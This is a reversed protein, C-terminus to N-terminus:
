QLTSELIQISNKIEEVEKKIRYMDLKSKQGVFSSYLTLKRVQYSLINIKNLVNTQNLISKSTM